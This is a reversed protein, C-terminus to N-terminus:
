SLSIFNGDEDAPRHWINCRHLFQTIQNAPNYNNFNSKLHIMVLNNFRLLLNKHLVSFDSRIFFAEENPILDPRDLQIVSYSEPTVVLEVTIL